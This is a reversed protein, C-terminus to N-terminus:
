KMKLQSQIQTMAEEQFVVSASVSGSGKLDPKIIILTYYQKDSWILMKLVDNLIQHM